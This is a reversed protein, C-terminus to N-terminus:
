QCTRVFYAPCQPSGPARRAERIGARLAGGDPEVEGCPEGSPTASRDPRSVRLRSCARVSRQLSDVPQGAAEVCKLARAARERVREAQGFLGAVQEQIAASFHGGTFREAFRRLAQERASDSAASHWARFVKVMQPQARIAALSTQFEDGAQELSELAASAASSAGDSCTNVSKNARRAVLAGLGKRLQALAPTTPGGGAPPRGQAARSAKRSM